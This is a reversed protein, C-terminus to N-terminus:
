KSGEMGGQGLAYKSYTASLAGKSEVLIGVLHFGWLPSLPPCALFVFATLRAIDGTVRTRQSGEFVLM